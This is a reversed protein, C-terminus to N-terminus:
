ACRDRGTGGHLKCRKKGKAAPRQCPTGARYVGRRALRLPWPERTLREIPNDDEKTM